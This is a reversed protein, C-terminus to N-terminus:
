SQRRLASCEALILTSATATFHAANLRFFHEASIQRACSFRASASAAAHLQMDQCTGQGTGDCRVSVVADPATPGRMVMSNCATTGSCRLDLRTAATADLTMDRCADTGSCTVSCDAGSECTPPGPSPAWTPLAIAGGALLDAASEPWSHEVCLGGQQACLVDCARWCM